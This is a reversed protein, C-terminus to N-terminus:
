KKVSKKAPKAEPKPASGTELDTPAPYGKGELAAIEVVIEKRGKLQQTLQQRAINAKRQAAKEVATMPASSAQGAPQASAASLANMAKTREAESLDEMSVGYTTLLAELNEKVNTGRDYVDRYIHLKGDEVMMTEYRLEVPITNKLKVVKTESRTQARKAIEEDTLEVGGIQALLKAFSQVQKDTMGVCGHSAFTGIKAPQKGGHILSPMGIPIKIVGLPNLKDGAAIKEGVKVKSSPSEVWPADPPTWTPNFIIQGARRMGTPLPFEPYGIAVKYSKVLRGNQFVDMRHSPANVVIRTDGPASFPMSHTTASKAAPATAPRTAPAVPSTSPSPTTAALLTGTPLPTAGATIPTMQGAPTIQSAPTGLPAPEESLAVTDNGSTDITRWHELALAAFQQAKEAGIIASIKAAAKEGAATTTTSSDDSTERLSATEDRAAQQLQTIQEDTLQLQTKLGAPFSKDAFFLADIIPLTVPLEKIAIAPTPAPTATPAPTSTVPQPLTNQGEEMRQKIFWAGAGLGALIIITLLLRKM